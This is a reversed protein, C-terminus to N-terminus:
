ALPPGGYDAFREASRVVGSDWIDGWGRAARRTSTAVVVRYHTQKGSTLRWGLQPRRDDIGLPEEAADVELGVVAPGRNDAPAV